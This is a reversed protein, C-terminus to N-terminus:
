EHTNLKSTIYALIQEPTNEINVHIGYNPEELTDFQSQLLNSKMYHGERQELRSQIVDYSGKLYIWTVNKSESASLTRYSEKLASCSLVAGGQKDWTKMNNALQTLWPFRDVDTLPIGQRMKDINSPPHFDDADFYPLKLQKALQKGITTKGCGSVGMIVIM